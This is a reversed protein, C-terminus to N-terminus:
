GDAARHYVSSMAGVFAPDDGYRYGTATYVQIATDESPRILRVGDIAYARWPPSEALAEVVADRDMVMGDALVMVADALMVAGYFDAATGDCLADSGAHELELLLHRIENDAM